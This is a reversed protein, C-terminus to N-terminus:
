RERGPGRSPRPPQRRAKFRATERKRTKIEEYQERDKSLFRSRTDGLKRLREMRAQLVRRQELQQFVLADREQQDRRLAEYTEQENRKRIRGHQGGLRDFLGRLGKRFRAQRGLTEAQSRAAQAQQFKKREAAHKEAMQRRKHEIESLRTAIAASQQSQLAGLRDMITRAIQERAEDVSPLAAQDTLKSRTEKTKIGVWKPVAFVECRHDLAM